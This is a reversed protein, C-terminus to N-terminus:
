QPDTELGFPAPRIPRRTRNDDCPKLVGHLTQLTPSPTHEYRGFSGIPATKFHFSPDTYNAEDTPTIFNPESQIRKSQDYRELKRITTQFELPTEETCITQRNADRTKMQRKGIHYMEQEGVPHEIHRRTFRHANEGSAGEKHMMIEEEPPTFMKRTGGSGISSGAVDEHSSGDSFIRNEYIPLNEHRQASEIGDSVNYAMDPGWDHTKVQVPKSCLTVKAFKRASDPHDVVKQTGQYVSTDEPGLHIGATDLPNRRPTYM